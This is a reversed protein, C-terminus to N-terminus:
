GTISKNRHPPLAEIIDNEGAPEPMTDGLLFGFPKLSDVHDAILKIIATLPISMFMGPIGWLAGFGIVVIVSVLANIKVKSAVIKPVIYNNDILQIIYFAVLVWVAVWPSNETVFAIMMPLAVGIIGGLYPILNLLAALIGLLIAYEVGLILLAAIDLAAVIIMEVFLGSLYSQILTKVESIIKSVKHRHGDHFSRRIFEIIIPEYYLIMFIYVPILLLAVFLGGITVLTQGIAQASKAVIDAKTSEIWNSMRSTSIDFFGSIWYITETMFSDIKGVLAPFTETFRSFQLVIFLGLGAVLLFAITITIIISAVRGLKLRMFFNKVPHLLIAVIVAVIIPVLIQRAVYMMSGFTFIGLILLSAKAYFPLKVYRDM